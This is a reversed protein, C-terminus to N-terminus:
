STTHENDGSPDGAPPSPEPKPEDSPPQQPKEPKPEDSPPQQPKEPKDPQEPEPQDAQPETLLERFPKEARYSELEKTLPELQDESGLEVAKQSWKIATQFNGTEAYGAALTSLIHPLKYETLECAKTALEIARKGDRLNEDPSTALVWALNNLVGTDDPDLKIAKEYDAIAEAQKGVGLLADGRARLAVPNDPQKELVASFKEIAKRSQGEAVYFLALQLEVELDEPEAKQLEELQAAALDFKGSRALLMARFRMALPLGPYLKLVQDVDALAKDEQELEQYTSARLLLVAPNAPQLVYAQELLELAKQFESQLGYIRARHILPGASKPALEAAKDLGSMAEDYRELEILVKGREEYTLAHDPDLKIAADFDALAQDYKEQSAHLSGRMRIPAPDRPNARVAEDLDALRKEPDEELSARLALVKGRFVFDEQSLSIAEDLAETARKPEGGPLFNLQAIRLLAQPQQPDLEVGEELDELAMRRYEPWRPDLLRKALIAQAYTLGRQIRTSALLQRAFATNDEDLGEELASECLRIVEGWAIPDRAALKAETARDLDELGENEALVQGGALMTLAFLVLVGFRLELSM